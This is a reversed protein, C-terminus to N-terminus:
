DFVRCSNCQLWYLLCRATLWVRWTCIITSACFGSLDKTKKQCLKKQMTAISSNTFSIKDESPSMTCKCEKEALSFFVYRCTANPRVYWLIRFAYLLMIDGVLGDEVRWQPTNRKRETKTTHTLSNNHQAEKKTQKSNRSCWATSWITKQDCSTGNEWGICMIRWKCAGVFWRHNSMSSELSYM